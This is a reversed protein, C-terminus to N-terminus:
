TLQNREGGRFNRRRQSVLDRTVGSKTDGDTVNIADSAALIKRRTTPNFRKSDEKMLDYLVDLFGQNREQVVSPLVFDILDAEKFNLVTAYPFVAEVVRVVGAHDKSEALNFDNIFQTILTALAARHQTCCRMKRKNDTMAEINGVLSDEYQKSTKPKKVVVPPKADEETLIPNYIFSWRDEQVSMKSGRVHKKTYSRKLTATPTAAWASVLFSRKHNVFFTMGSEM